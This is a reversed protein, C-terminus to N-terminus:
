TKEKQLDEDNRIQEKLSEAEQKAWQQMQITYMEPYGPWEGSQLCKEFLMSAIEIKVRGIEIIERPVRPCTVAYPPEKEQTILM